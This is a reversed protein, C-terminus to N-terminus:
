FLAEIGVVKSDSTLWLQFFNEDNAFISFLYDFYKEIAWGISGEITKKVTDYEPHRQEDTYAPSLFLCLFLFTAFFTRLKIKM